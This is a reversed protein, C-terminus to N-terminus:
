EDFNEIFVRAASKLGDDTSESEVQRFVAVGRKVAMDDDFTNMVRNMLWLNYETPHRCVSAILMDFYDADTRREEIARVLDGPAGFDHHPNNELVHLMPVLAQRPYGAAAVRELLADLASSDDDPLLLSDLDDWRTDDRTM